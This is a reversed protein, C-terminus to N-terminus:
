KFSRSRFRGHPTSDIQENAAAILAFGLGIYSQKSTYAFHQKKTQNEFMTLTM